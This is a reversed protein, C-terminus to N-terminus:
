YKDRLAEIGLVYHANMRLLFSSHLDLTTLLGSQTQPVKKVKKM